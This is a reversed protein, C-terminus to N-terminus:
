ALRLLACGAVGDRDVSTILAHRGAPEPETGSVALLAALQFAASAASTDFILEDVRIQRPTHGDLAALTAKWEEDAYQGGGPAVAWLHQPPVGARHLAARVTRALVDGSPEDDGHVGFELALIEALVTRRAHQAAPGSELLFVACGEGLPQDRDAPERAHWELWCRQVSFEEVSGCLVAEAHGGRQLRLAYNLALLGTARGAAITTNPGRLGHWIASQGAACNMVTSPFRAPDVHYPKDRTLSDRTFDMMSQVSGTGTGLVLGLEGTPLGGGVSRLLAGVTAVALGTARDMSRTGKRGLVTRADFGPVLAGARQPVPWTDPDLATAVPKGAAVGAVFGAADLDFPSM